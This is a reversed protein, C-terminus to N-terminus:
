DCRPLSLYMVTAVIAGGIMGVTKVAKDAFEAISMGGSIADLEDVSLERVQDQTNPTELINAM